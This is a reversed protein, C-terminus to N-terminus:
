VNEQTSLGWEVSSGATINDRFNLSALVFHSSADPISDGIFSFVEDAVHNSRSFFTNTRSLGELVRPELSGHFGLLLVFSLSLNHVSGEFVESVEVAFVFSLLSGKTVEDLM